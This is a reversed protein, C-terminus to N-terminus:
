ELGSVLQNFISSDHIYYHFRWLTCRMMMVIGLRIVLRALVSRIM